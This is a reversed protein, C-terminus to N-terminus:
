IEITVERFGPIIGLFKKIWTSLCSVLLGYEGFLKAAVAKYNGTSKLNRNTILGLDKYEMVEHLVVGRVTYHYSEDCSNLQMVLSKNSNVELSWRNMWEIMSDLDDWLIM